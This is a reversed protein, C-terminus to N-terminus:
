RAGSEILKDRDQAIPMRLSNPSRVYRCRETWERRLAASQCWDVSSPPARSWRRATGPQSEAIQGLAREGDFAEAGTSRDAGVTICGAPRLVPAGFDPTPPADVGAQPAPSGAAGTTLMWLVDLQM